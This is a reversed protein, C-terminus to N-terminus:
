PFSFSNVKEVKQNKLVEKRLIKDNHVIEWNPFFTNKKKKKKM